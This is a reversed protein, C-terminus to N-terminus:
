WSIIGSITPKPYLSLGVTSYVISKKTLNKSFKRVLNPTSLSLMIPEENPPKKAVSNVMPFESFTSLNIRAAGAPAIRIDVRM